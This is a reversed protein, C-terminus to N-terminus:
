KYASGNEDSYCMCTFIKKNYLFSFNLYRPDLASTSVACQICQLCVSGSTSDKTWDNEECILM